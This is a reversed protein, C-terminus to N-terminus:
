RWRWSSRGSRRPPRPVLPCPRKRSCLGALAAPVTILLGEWLQTALLQGASAGRGRALALAGRRRGVIIVAVLGLAGAAVALPALAAVWLAAETAVAPGRVARPCRPPRLPVPHTWEFRYRGDRLEVRAPAPRGPAPSRARTWGTPTSMSRWRYRSPLGLTLVDAYAAPAFLATAFAIPSEATGGIAAEALTSEDFWYPERPDDVTFLGVVELEVETTPRPFVNRLMPDSPDVATPLVDGLEVLLAAATASSLAVEFRPPLDPETPAPVLVPPRGAVYEIHEEVGDQQRLTVYSTFQTPRDARLPHQRRRVLAVRHAAPDVCAPSGPARGRSADVNAFADDGEARIQDVTTFQLNRQASTARAVEYRMGADAVRDFLRPSAAVVFSTVAVLVFLLIAM